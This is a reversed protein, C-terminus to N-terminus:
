RRMDACGFGRSIVGISGVLSNPDAIIEDELCKAAENVFRSVIRDQIEKESLDLNQTAFDKVYKRVDANITKKSKKPTGIM